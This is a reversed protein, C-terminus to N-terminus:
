CRSLKVPPPFPTLACVALKEMDSVRWVGKWWRGDPQGVHVLWADPKLSTLLIYNEEDENGFGTSGTAPPSLPVLQVLSHLPALAALPSINENNSSSAMIRHRFPLPSHCLLPSYLSFFFSTNVLFFSFLSLSLHNAISHQQATSHQLGNGCANFGDSTFRIVRSSPGTSDTDTYWNRTPHVCAMMSGHAALRLRFQGVLSCRLQVWIMLPQVATPAYRQHCCLAYFWTRRRQRPCFLFGHAREDLVSAM